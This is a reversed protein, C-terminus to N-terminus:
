PFWRVVRPGMLMTAWLPLRSWLRASMAFKPHVPSFNPVEKRNVLYVQYPLPEVKMNWQSKFAYSGTGRKSRGFDFSRIGAQSASKMLEWYMFNNAAVRNSEPVAGAYYPLVTDRFFLSLVGSVPQGGSYILLLDMAEGFEQMLNGFLSRPYVPTGLRRMSTAFLRYFEPLQDLGRRTTLGAKEAKRIMYRTDRPLRKLNAEPDDSLETTFTVYLTRPRFGAYLEGARNRLELFEVERKAAMQKIHELLAQESDVDSACIGGYVALPTSLLCRGTIWNSSYFLPAIGTIQGLRETYLYCPEYGFTKEVVRKWGLQHFFTADPHQRIFRDWHASMTADFSRVRVGACRGPPPVVLERDPRSSVTEM